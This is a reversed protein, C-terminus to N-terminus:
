YPTRYKMVAQEGASSSMKWEKPVIMTDKGGDPFRSQMFTTEQSNNKPVNAAVKRDNGGVAYNSPM